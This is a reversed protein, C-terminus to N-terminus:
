TISGSFHAAGDFDLNLKLSSKSYNLERNKLERYIIKTITQEDIDSFLMICLFLKRIQGCDIVFRIIITM